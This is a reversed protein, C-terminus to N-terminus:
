NSRQRISSGHTFAISLSQPNQISCDSWDSAEVMDTHRVDPQRVYM